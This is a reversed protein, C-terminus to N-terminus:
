DFFYQASTSSCDVIPVNTVDGVNNLPGSYFGNEDITGANLVNNRIYNKNIDSGLWGEERTAVEKLDGNPSQYYMYLYDTGYKSTTVYFIYGNDYVEYEPITAAGAPDTVPIGQSDFYYYKASGNTTVKKGNINYLKQLETLTVSENTRGVNLVEHPVLAAGDELVVVYKEGNQAFIAELELEDWEIDVEFKM